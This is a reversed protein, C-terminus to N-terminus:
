FIDGFHQLDQMTGDIRMSQHHLSFFAQLCACPWTLGCALAFIAAFPASSCFEVNLFQRIQINNTPKRFFAANEAAHRNPSSFLYDVGATTNPHLACPKERRLFPCSHYTCISHIPKKPTHNERQFMEGVKSYTGSASLVWAYKGIFVLYSQM